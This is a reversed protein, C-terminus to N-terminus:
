LARAGRGAHRRALLAEPDHYDAKAAVYFDLDPANTYIINPHVNLVKLGPTDLRLTAAEFGTAQTRLDFYDNYFIPIELLDAEKWFPVLGQALPM